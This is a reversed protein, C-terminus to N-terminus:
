SNVSANSRYIAGYAQTWDIDGFEAEWYEEWIHHRRQCKEGIFRDYFQKAGRMKELVCSVYPHFM